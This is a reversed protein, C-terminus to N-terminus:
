TLDPVEFGPAPSGFGGVGFDESGQVRFGQVPSHCGPIPISDHRPKRRMVKYGEHGPRTCAANFFRASAILAEDDGALWIARGGM